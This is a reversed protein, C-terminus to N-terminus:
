EYQKAQVHLKAPRGVQVQSASSFSGQVCTLPSRPHTNSYCRRPVCEGYQRVGNIDNAINTDIDYFAGMQAHTGVAGWLLVWVFVARAMELVARM